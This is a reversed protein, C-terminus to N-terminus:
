LKEPACLNEPHSATRGCGKCIYRSSAALKKYDGFNTKFTEKGQLYCLHKEHGPHPMSETAMTEEIEPGSPSGTM